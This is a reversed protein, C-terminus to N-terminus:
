LRFTRARAASGGSQKFATWLAFYVAPWRDLVGDGGRLPQASWKVAAFVYPETAAITDRGARVADDYAACAAIWTGPDPAQMVCCMDAPDPETVVLLSQAGASAVLVAAESASLGAPPRAADLPAITGDPSHQRAEEELARAVKGALAPWKRNLADLEVLGPWLLRDMLAASLGTQRDAAMAVMHAAYAPRDFPAVVVTTNIPEGLEIALARGQFDKASKAKIAAREEDTFEKRGQQAQTAATM